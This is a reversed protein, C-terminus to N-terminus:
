VRERFTILMQALMFGAFTAVLAIAVSTVAYAGARGYQGDELLTATEYSYTSFTTYGGCFGTTLLARLEVSMSPTALAYRIFVGLLLSGTVNVALTGWPFTAGVRHQIASALYYRSVGGLAAGLAVAWFTRM